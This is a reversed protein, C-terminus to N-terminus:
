YNPDHLVRECDTISSIIKKRKASCARQAAPPNGSIPVPIQQTVGAITVIERDIQIHDRGTEREGETKRHAYLYVYIYISQQIALQTIM